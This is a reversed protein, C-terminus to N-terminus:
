YSILYNFSYIFNNYYQDVDEQDVGEVNHDHYHRAVGVHVRGNM